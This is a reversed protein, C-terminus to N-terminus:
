DLKIRKASLERSIQLKIQAREFKEREIIVDHNGNLKGNAYFENRLIYRISGPSKNLNRAIRKIPINNYYDEFINKITEASEADVVVEKGVVDYGFPPRNMFISNSKAKERGRNIRWQRLDTEFESFVARIRQFAKEFSKEPIRDSPGTTWISAVPYGHQDFVPAGVCHVGGLQEARDVAYGLERIEKLEAKFKRKDTITRDNFRHLKIVNLVEDLQKEPLFALIAKGPAATHLPFKLGTDAIFKFPHTGPVQDLVVGENSAITGLLVTEKVVDRLQRMVDLSKEILNYESVASYGLTLLKRSLTFRKNDDDRQLYGHDQLTLTIRFVSNKPFGLKDVIESLGLGERHQSLLEMIVLARELNPVHYASGNSHTSAKRLM